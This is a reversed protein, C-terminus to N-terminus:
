IMQKSAYMGAAAIALELLEIEEEKKSNNSTTQQIINNNM